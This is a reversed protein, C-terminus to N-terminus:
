IFASTMKIFVKKSLDKLKGKLWAILEETSATSLANGDSFFDPYIM